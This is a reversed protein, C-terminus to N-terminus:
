LHDRLERLPEWRIDVAEHVHGCDAVNLDQGCTACLGKCGPDHLPNAPVALLVEDRVAPELDISDSEVVFGEEFEEQEPYAYVENVSVTFAADFEMLCRSCELAYVGAVDGTVLIGEVLSELLLSGRLAGDGAVRALGVELGLVHAQLDLRKSAGPHRVLESVDIRLSHDTIM